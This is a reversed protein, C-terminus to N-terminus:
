LGSLVYLKIFLPANLGEETKGMKAEIITLIKLSEVSPVSNYTYYETASLPLKM